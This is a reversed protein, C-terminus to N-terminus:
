KGGGKPKPLMERLTKICVLLAIWEGEGRTFKFLGKIKRVAARITAADYKPKTM